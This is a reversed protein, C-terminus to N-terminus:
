NKLMYIQVRNLKIQFFYIIHNANNMQTTPSDLVGFNLIQM